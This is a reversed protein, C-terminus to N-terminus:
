SVRWNRCIEFDVCVWCKWVEMCVVIILWVRFFVSLWVGFFVFIEWLM